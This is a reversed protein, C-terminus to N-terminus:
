AIWRARDYPGVGGSATEDVYSICAVPASQNERECCYGSDATPKLVMLVSGYLWRQVSVATGQTHERAIDCLVCVTCGGPRM